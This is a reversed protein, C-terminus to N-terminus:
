GCSRAPITKMAAKCSLNIIIVLYITWHHGLFICFSDWYQKAHCLNPILSSDYFTSTPFWTPCLRERLTILFVTTCFICYFLISSVCLLNRLILPYTISNIHSTRISIWVCVAYLRLIYVRNKFIGSLLYIQHFHHCFQWIRSWIGWSKVTGQVM